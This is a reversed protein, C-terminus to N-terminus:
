RLAARAAALVTDPPSRNDRRKAARLASTAHCSSLHLTQRAPAPFTAANRRSVGSVCEYQRGTTSVSVGSCNLSARLSGSTLQL